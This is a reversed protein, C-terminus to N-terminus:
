LVSATNSPLLVRDWTKLFVAAIATMWDHIHAVHPIWDTDKCIQLAAKSLVAFRYADRTAATSKPAASIVSTTSSGSRLHGDLKAEYIGVWIEEGRGFHVCCTRSFTINYKYRDIRQYLPM